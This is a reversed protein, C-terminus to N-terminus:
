SSTPPAPPTCLTARMNQARYQYYWLMLSSPSSCYDGAKLDGVVKEEFSSHLFSFYGLLPIETMPKEEPGAAETVDGLSCGM